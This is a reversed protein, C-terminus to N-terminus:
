KVRTGPAIGEGVTVVRLNPPEGAALLMGQSTIGKLARPELNAVVVIRQGVLVAPDPYAQAIGAVITRPTAEGADVELRLLKDAKPVRESSRVVAVRLEVRAFDDYGIVGPVAPAAPTAAAKGKAAPAAEAPAVVLRAV